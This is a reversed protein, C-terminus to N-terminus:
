KVICIIFIWLDKCDGISVMEIDSQHYFLSQHFIVAYWNLLFCHHPRHLSFNSLGCLLDSACWFGEIQNSFTKLLIESLHFLGQADGFYILLLLFYDINDHWIALL